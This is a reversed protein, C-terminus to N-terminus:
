GGGPGPAKAIMAEPVVNEIPPISQLYAWMARLDEDPMESYSAWPMPPLIPRGVGMHKGRRMAQVFLDESWVGLGTDHPTLNMAYSVGWPGAFATGTASTLMMWGDPVKAPPHAEKEPHGSLLRSADTAPGSPGLIWPTHCEGCSAVEVLYKGRAVPDAPAAADAPAPPVSRSTSGSDACSSLALLLAGLPVWEAAKIVM